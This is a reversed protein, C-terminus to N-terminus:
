TEGPRSSPWCTLTNWTAAATKSRNPPIQNRRTLTTRHGPHQSAISHIRDSTWKAKFRFRTRNKRALLVPIPRIALSICTFVSSRFRSLPRPPFQNRAERIQNNPQNRQKALATLLCPNLHPMVEFQPPLNRPHILFILKAWHNKRSWQWTEPVSLPDLKEPVSEAKIKNRRQSKMMMQMKMVRKKMKKQSRKVVRNVRRHNLLVSRRSGILGQFFNILYFVQIKMLDEKHSHLWPKM